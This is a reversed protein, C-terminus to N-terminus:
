GTLVGDHLLRVISGVGLVEFDDSWFTYAENVDSSVLSVSRLSM